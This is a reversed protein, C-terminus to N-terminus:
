TNGCQKIYQICGPTKNNIRNYDSISIINNALAYDPYAPYQIETNTLGNGIAFGKLNIYIRRKNKNGRNIRTALAPIFHGAYSEGTIYFDNKVYDPHTKFFAQLFKYLDNSVGTEDHLIDQDSSSYSLGTGTPQDVFIINSVQTSPYIDHPWYLLHTTWSTVLRFVFYYRIGVMIM